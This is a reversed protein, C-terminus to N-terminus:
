PSILPKSLFPITCTPSAARPWHSRTQSRPCLRELGKVELEFRMYSKDMFAVTPRGLSFNFYQLGGPFSDGEIAKQCSVEIYQHDVM